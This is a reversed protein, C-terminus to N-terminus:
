NGHGGNPPPLDGQKKKDSGKDTNHNQSPKMILGTAPRGFVECGPLAKQLSAAGRATVKTGDVILDALRNLGALHVLGVDTIDTDDLSLISLQELGGLHALGADTIRTSSLNLEALQSLGRLHVLGADTVRTRGLTLRWLFSLGELHELGTDSIQTGGLDLIQLLNLRELHELGVDTVQTNALRLERLKKLGRVHVLGADTVRTNSLYLWQLQKLSQLSALGADTIETKDLMLWQLQRLSKLRALEADATKTGSLEVRHVEVLSEDRLFRGLWTPEYAVRGGAMQIMKAVDLQSRERQMETTLWSCPAAVAVVLLLLSRLSYQFRWGFLLSTVFWLLFLAVTAGAAAVAILAACGEQQNFNFWCFSESLLLFAEVAFLALVLRNPTLSYWRRTAESTDGM